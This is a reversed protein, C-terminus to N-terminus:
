FGKEALAYVVDEALGNLQLLRPDIDLEAKREETELADSLLHERARNRLEQAIDSDFGDIAALEDLPVYAVDEIGAFGEQVM